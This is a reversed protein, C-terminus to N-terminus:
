VLFGHESAVCPVHWIYKVHIKAHIKFEPCVNFFTSLVIWIQGAKLWDAKLSLLIGLVFLSYWSILKILILTWNVIAFVCSCVLFWYSNSILLCPYPMNCEGFNPVFPQCLPLSILVYMFSFCTISSLWFWGLKLLVNILVIAVLSCFGNFGM